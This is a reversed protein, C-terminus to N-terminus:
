ARRAIYLVGTLGFIVVLLLEYWRMGDVSYLGVIIMPLVALVTAYLYARNLTLEKRMTRNTFLKTLFRVTKAGYYLLFTVVGLLSLYALIFVALIVVPGASSPATLSLLLALICFSAVTVTTLIRIFMVNKSYVIYLRSGRCMWPLWLSLGLREGTAAFAVQIDFLLAHSSYSCGTARQSVSRESFVRPLYHQTTEVIRRTTDQRGQQIEGCIRSSLFISPADTSRVRSLVAICQASRETVGFFFSVLFTRAIRMYRM